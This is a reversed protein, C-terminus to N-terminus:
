WFSDARSRSADPPAREAVTIYGTENVFRSFQANTVPHRDIWFGEVEVRRVPREEPYFDESGMAFTRGPIWRM